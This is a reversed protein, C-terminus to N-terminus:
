SVWYGDILGYGDFLGWGRCRIGPALCQRGCVGLLNPSITISCAKFATIQSSNNSLKRKQVHCGIGYISM